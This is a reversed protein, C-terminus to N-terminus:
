HRCADLDIIATLKDAFREVAPGVVLMDRQVEGAWAFRSVVRINLRKVAAEAVLAQVHM